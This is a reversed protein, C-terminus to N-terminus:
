EEEGERLKELKFYKDLKELSNAIRELQHESFTVKYISNCKKIHFMALFYVIILIISLLIFGFKWNVM